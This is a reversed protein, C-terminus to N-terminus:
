RSRTSLTLARRREDPHWDASDLIAPLELRVQRRKWDSKRAQKDILQTGSSSSSAPADPPTAAASSYRQLCTCLSTADRARKSRLLMSSRACSNREHAGVAAALDHDSSLLRRKVTAVTCSHSSSGQIHLRLWDEIKGGPTTSYKLEASPHSVWHLVTSLRTLLPPSM